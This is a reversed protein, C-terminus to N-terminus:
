PGKNAPGLMDRLQPVIDATFFVVVLAARRAEPSFPVVRAPLPRQHGGGTDEAVVQGSDLVRLTTPYRQMALSDDAAFVGGLFADPSDKHKAELHHGGYLKGDPEVVLEVGGGSNKLLNGEIKLVTAGNETVNGDAGLSWTTHFTPLSWVVGASVIPIGASVAKGPPPTSTCSALALVLAAIFRAPSRAARPRPAVIAARSDEV